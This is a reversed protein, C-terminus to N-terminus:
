YARAMSYEQLEEQNPAVVTRTFERGDVDLTVNVTLYDKLATLLDPSLSAIGNTPINNSAVNSLDGMSREMINEVEPMGQEIGVGVGAPIWKGVEDRMVRSPSHIGLAAKAGDVIGGFFDGVKGAIWSGMGTIGEWVGRVIDKGISLMEGPLGKVKNVISDWLGQAAERGRQILENKWTIVKNASEKLWNWIRGPLQKFWEIVSNIFQSGIEKAKAWMESGWNVVFNYARQLQVWIKGPLESIWNWVANLFEAGIGIVTMILDNGWQVISTLTDNIWTLFAQKMDEAWINVEEWTQVLWEWIRGPLESFWTSISDILEPIKTSLYNWTDSVWLGIKTFVFGLIYGIRYPLQGFWEVISDIMNGIKNPIDKVWNAFGETTDALWQKIGNWTDKIWNKINNYTDKAWNKIGEKTDNVFNSFREGISNYWDIFGQKTDEIWGLFSEKMNSAWEKASEIMNPLTENFFNSIGEVANNFAEKVGEWMGIWFNRFDESTNWLYIFGAVLGGIAMIILTIPNLAMVANLAAQALTLGETATRWKQFGTVLSDIIKYGKIIFFMSGLVTVFKQIGELNDTIWTILKTLPPLLKEGLATGASEMKLELIRLQNAFSDSTKSFDGQADASVKMLYQYRLMTQESQSMKAYPKSIGEALAYAQLNAVSMNIGLQKLPETEGSIGARIKGFAEEHPLNYFSAFDGALDVLNGSVNKVQEATLGTSKLMAGMAGAYKKYALESMGIAEPAEKAWQNIIDKNAEFTTDVVNQVEQLDSALMVSKKGFEVMKGVAFAQGVAGAIKGGISKFSNSANQGQQVANNMGRDFDRDDLSIRAMLNFLNM